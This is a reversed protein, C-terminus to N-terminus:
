DAVVFTNRGNEKAQYLAGDARLTISDETDNIIYKSIGISLTVTFDKELIEALDEDKM